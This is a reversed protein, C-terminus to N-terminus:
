LVKFVRLVHHYTDGLFRLILGSVVMITLKSTFPPVLPHRRLDLLHPRHRRVTQCTLPIKAISSLHLSHIKRLLHLLHLIMEVMEGMIMRSQRRLFMRPHSTM